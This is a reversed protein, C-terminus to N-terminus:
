DETSGLLMQVAAPLDAAPTPPSGQRRPHTRGSLRSPPPPAILLAILRLRRPRRLIEAPAARVAAWLHVLAHSGAGLTHLALALGLRRAAEQAPPFPGEGARIRNTVRLFAVVLAQARDDGRIEQSQALARAISHYYSVEGWAAPRARLAERMYREAREEDGRELAMRTLYRHMNYRAARQPDVGAGALDDPQLRHEVVYLVDREAGDLDSTMSGPHKRYVALPPAVYGFRHGLRALRLWLEWDAMASLAPDFGGAEVVVSRRALVAHIPFLNGAVLHPRLDGTKGPQGALAATGWREDWQYWPGYVLDCDPASQLARTPFVLRDPILMDDADLFLVFEGRSAALGVNRATSVGLGELRIARIADGFRELVAPTRDTSGDDVVTVEVRVGRQALASRIAQGVYRGYNHAPIVISVLPDTERM